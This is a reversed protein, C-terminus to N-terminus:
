IGKGGMVTFEAGSEPQGDLLPLATMVLQRIDEPELSADHAQKSIWIENIWISKGDGMTGVIYQICGDNQELLGAAKLLIDLLDRQKGDKATMKGSLGYYEAM